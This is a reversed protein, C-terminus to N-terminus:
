VSGGFLGKISGVPIYIWIECDPCQIMLYAEENVTTIGIEAKAKEFDEQTEAKLVEIKELKM